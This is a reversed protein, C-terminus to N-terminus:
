GDSDVIRLERLGEPLPAGASVYGVGAPEGLLWEIVAADSGKVRPPTGRGAFIEQQWYAQVAAQERRLVTESFRSRVVSTASQDVPRAPSGDPWHAAQKLFVRELAGRAVSEVPCDARVLVRFGETALVPADQGRAGAACAILALAAAGIRGVRRLESTVPM